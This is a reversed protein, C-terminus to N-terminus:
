GYQTELLFTNNGKKYDGAGIEVYYGNRKEQTINLVFSEQNHASNSEPYKKFKVM